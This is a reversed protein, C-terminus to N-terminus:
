EPTYFPLEPVVEHSFYTERYTFFDANRVANTDHLLKVAEGISRLGLSDTKGVDIMAVLIATMDQPTYSAFIGHELMAQTIISNKVNFPLQFWEALSLDTEGLQDAGELEYVLSEHWRVIAEYYQHQATTAFKVAETIYPDEFLSEVIERGSGEVGKMREDAEQFLRLARLYNTQAQQLLPSTDPLTMVEISRYVEAATNSLKKLATLVDSAQEGVPASWTNTWSTQFTRFPYYVNYYFSVLHQQHYSTLEEKLPEETQANLLHGYQEAAKSRGVDVGYFFAVIICFFMFIFLFAFLYDSITLRKEM